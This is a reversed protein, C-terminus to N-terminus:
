KSEEVTCGAFAEAGGFQENPSGDPNLNSVQALADAETDFQVAQSPKFADFAPRYFVSTGIVGGKPIAPSGAHLPLDMPALIQESREIVMETFYGLTSHKIVYRM